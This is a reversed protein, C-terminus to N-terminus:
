LELFDLDQYTGTPKFSFMSSVLVIANPGMVEFCISFPYTSATDSKIKRPELIM